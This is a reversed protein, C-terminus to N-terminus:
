TIVLGRNSHRSPYHNTEPLRQRIEPVLGYALAMLKLPHLTPTTTRQQMQLRCASCETTGIGLDGQQMRSILPRGIEISTAFNDKAIGWAGAMGSCGTEITSVRLGPILGLLERLSAHDGLAKLHCPAHYGATLELPQFDLSLRGAAHLEALFTGAEVVQEAM